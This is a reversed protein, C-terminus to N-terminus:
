SAVVRASVPLANGWQMACRREVVFGAMEVQAPRVGFGIEINAVRPEAFTQLLECTM